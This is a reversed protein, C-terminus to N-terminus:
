PNCQSGTTWHLVDSQLNELWPQQNYLPSVEIHLIGGVLFGMLGVERDSHHAWRHSWEWHCMSDHCPSHIFRDVISIQHWSLRASCRQGHLQQASDQLETRRTRGRDGVQCTNTSQPSVWALLLQKSMDAQRASTLHPLEDFAQQKM